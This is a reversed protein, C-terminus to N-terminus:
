RACREDGNGIYNRMVEFSLRTFRLRELYLKENRSLSTKASVPALAAEMRQLSRELRALLEPTYIAPAAHYEHETVSTNRWAAFIANWYEAAFEAAPGYFKPYFEALLAEVDANPNWMLQGRFFLNLFTTATAGRSETGIGLIGARAYHKVDQAFAHHSPNPLDRWILMGQDYDYIALRGQLLEAWRYMMAKYEQRPLSKPDDMGHNPDIDIPALWM